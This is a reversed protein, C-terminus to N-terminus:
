SEEFLVVNLLVYVPAPLVAVVALPDELPVELAEAPPVAAVAAVVFLSSKALVASGVNNVASGM